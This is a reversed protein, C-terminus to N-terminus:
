RLEQLLSQIESGAGELSGRADDLGSIAKSAQISAAAAQARAGLGQARRAINSLRNAQMQLLQMSVLLRSNQLEKMRNRLRLGLAVVPIVSGVALLFGAVCLGVLVWTWLSM